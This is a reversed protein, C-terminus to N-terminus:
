EHLWAPIVRHLAWAVLAMPIVLLIKPLLSNLFYYALDVAFARRFIKRPHVSFLRELPVFVLMLLLLWISLRLFDVAVPPLQAQAQRLIEM